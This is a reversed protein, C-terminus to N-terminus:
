ACDRGTCGLRAQEIMPPLREVLFDILARVAPLVGRRTPYVLHFLGMPTRWEPLVVVLEGREVARGCFIEPLLAVGQGALAAAQLLGFDSAMVRPRGLAVREIRGEPGHLEWAQRNLDESNNLTAHAALDQPSELAPAQALYAPSAVLLEQVEGLRRLVLSADDDIRSRVRLALDIGEEILDVRRNGVAVHVQVLPHRELFEPLLAAMQVQALAVPCAIRVLGRPQASLRAVTERAARAEDLMARAHRYVDQGVDTVSFHRTSRQLLRVGLDKELAAVRRSLRSKPTGLAREAAAFGGHDVVGAFLALDDLEAM